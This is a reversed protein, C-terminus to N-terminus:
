KTIKLLVGQGAPLYLSMGCKSLHGDAPSYEELNSVPPLEKLNIKASRELSLNVLVLHDVADEQSAFEGIMLPADASLKRVFKGPLGHGTEAPSTFYVGNSKMRSVIPGIVKLQSNVMQLYSWTATRGHSIDIPCYLYGKQEYKYWSVGRGGAAVTTWGQLLLNAPSPTTTAPRIQVCTVINWFPLGHKLAVRRVEILDHFYNAATKADRLDQSYEVMYNDYSIFQPKVKAVYEELYTTFDKAELQSGPAKGPIAYSPFLNIYALKGPAHRRIAAVVKGLYEFQSAGPEDCIFYGMCARSGRTQEALERVKRDLEADTLHKGGRKVIPEEARVIAALGLKECAPLDDVRPFGAFTFNCEVLSALGHVRDEPGDIARVQDWPLISFRNALDLNQSGSQARISKGAFLLIGIALYTLSRRM